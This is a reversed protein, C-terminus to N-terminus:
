FYKAFFEKLKRRHFKSWKYRVKNYIQSHKMRNRDLTTRFTGTVSGQEVLPKKSWYHKVGLTKDLDKILHDAPLTIINNKNETWEIRKRCAHNDTLYGEATAIPDEFISLKTKLKEFPVKTDAGGFFILYGPNLFLSEEMVKNFDAEFNNSLIADDEFILIRKYKKKISIKWAEINKMILSIQSISLKNTDFKNIDKKSLDSADYKFIFDFDINHKEMQKNIHEIRNSYTKVSLVFVKDVLQNVKHKVKM